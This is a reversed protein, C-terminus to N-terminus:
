KSLKVYKGYSDMFEKMVLESDEARISIFASLKNSGERDLTFSIEAYGTLGAGKMRVAEFTGSNKDSINIQFGLDTCTRIAKSFATDFDTNYVEFRKSVPSKMMTVTACGTVFITIFIFAAFTCISLSGRHSKEM